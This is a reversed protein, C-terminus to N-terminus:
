NWWNFVPNRGHLMNWLVSVTTPKYQLPQIPRRKGSREWMSETCSWMTCVSNFWLSSWFLALIQWFCLTLKLIKIILPMFTIIICYLDTNEHMTSVKEGIPCYVNIEVSQESPQRVHYPWIVTAAAYILWDIHEYRLSPCRNWARNFTQESWSSITWKVLLTEDLVFVNGHFLICMGEKGFEHEQHFSAIIEVIALSLLFLVTFARKEMGSAEKDGTM